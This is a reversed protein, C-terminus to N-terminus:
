EDRGSRSLGPKAARVSFALVVEPSSSEDTFLRIMGNAPPKSGGAKILARVTITERARIAKPLAEVETCTCTATVGLLGIPHETLNTLKYSLSTKTEVPGSELVKVPEDVLLRAGRLYAVGGSVSGFRYCSYGGALALLAATPLIIGALGRMSARFTSKRVTAASRAEPATM